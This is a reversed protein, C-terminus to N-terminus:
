SCALPQQLCTLSLQESGSCGPPSSTRRTPAAPDSDLEPSGDQRPRPRGRTRRKPPPPPWAPPQQVGGITTKDPTPPQDVAATPPQPAPAPTPQPDVTATVRITAAGGDSDITVVDEHEGAATTAVGLVLEDSVQRLELWSAQTAARANLTGGSANGLRVRREPSKSHQPIRGFDIVTASLMLRPPLPKPMAPQPPAPEPPPPQPPAPEPPQPQSPAPPAQAGLAATAAASVTRSDDETLRELALRGALALGAHRSELM